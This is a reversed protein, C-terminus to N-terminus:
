VNPGFDDSFKFLYSGPVQGRSETTTGAWAFKSDCLLWRWDEYKATLLCTGRVTEHKGNDNRIDYFTCPAVIDASTREGNLSVSAVSFDGRLIRFNDRNFRIDGLEDDPTELVIEIRLGRRADDEGIPFEEALM